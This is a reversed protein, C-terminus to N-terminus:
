TLGRCPPKADLVSDGADMSDVSRVRSLSIYLQVLFKHLLQPVSAVKSTARCAPASRYHQHHRDRPDPRLLKRCCKCKRREGCGM